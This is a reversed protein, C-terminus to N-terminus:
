FCRSTELFYLQRPMRFLQDPTPGQCKDKQLSSLHALHAALASSHQIACPTEQGSTDGLAVREGNKFGENNTLSYHIKEFSYLTHNSYLCFIRYLLCQM